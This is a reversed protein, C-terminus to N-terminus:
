PLVNPAQEPWPAYLRLWFWLKVLGLEAIIVQRYFGSNHLM